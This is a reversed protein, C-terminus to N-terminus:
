PSCGPSPSRRTAAAAPCCWRRVSSTSSCAPHLPGAPHDRRLAADSRPACPDPQPADHGLRRERWSRLRGFVNPAGIEAPLATAASM